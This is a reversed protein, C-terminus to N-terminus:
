KLLGKMVNIGHKAVELDEESLATIIGARLEESTM